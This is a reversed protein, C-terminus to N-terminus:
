RCDHISDDIVTQQVQLSDAALNLYHLRGMQGAAGSRVVARARRAGSSFFLDPGLRQSKQIRPGPFLHYCSPSPPDAVIEPLLPAGTFFGVDLNMTHEM